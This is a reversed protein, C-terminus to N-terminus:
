LSAREFLFLILLPASDCESMYITAYLHVGECWGGAFVYVCLLIDASTIEFYFFFLANHIANYEAVLKQFKFICHFPTDPPLVCEALANRGVKM